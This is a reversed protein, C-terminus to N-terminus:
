TLAGAGGSVYPQWRREDGMPFAGGVNAMDSNVLPKEGIGVSSGVFGVRAV